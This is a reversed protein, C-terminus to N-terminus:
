RRKAAASSYATHATSGVRSPVSMEPMVAPAHSNCPAAKHCPMIVGPPKRTPKAEIIEAASHIETITYQSSFRLKESSPRRRSTM